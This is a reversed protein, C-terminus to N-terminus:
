GLSKMITTDFYEEIRTIKDDQVTAILLFPTEIVGKDTEGALTAQEVFGGSHLHVRVDTYVQNRFSKKSTDLINRYAAKDHEVPDFNYWVVGDDSLHSLIRDTDRSRCAAEWSKAVAGIAELNASM